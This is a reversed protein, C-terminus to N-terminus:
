FKLCPCKHNFFVKFFLLFSINWVLCIVQYEMSVYASVNMEGTVRNIMDKRLEEITDKDSKNVGFEFQTIDRNDLDGRM